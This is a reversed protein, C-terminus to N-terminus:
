VVSKRDKIYKIHDLTERGQKLETRLLNADDVVLLRVGHDRFAKVVRSTKRSITMGRVDIHLFDLILDDFQSRGTLASVNILIVPSFGATRGPSLTWEPLDDVGHGSDSTWERYLHLAWRRVLQSKGASYPGGVAAILNAGRASRSNRRVTEHLAATIADHETPSVYHPELWDLLQEVYAALGQPPLAKLERGSLPRPADGPESRALAHWQYKDM